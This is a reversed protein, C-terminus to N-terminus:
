EPFERFGVQIIPVRAFGVQHNYSRYRPGRRDFAGAGRRWFSPCSPACRRSGSGRSPQFAGSGQQTRDPTATSGPRRNRAGGSVTQLISLTQKGNGGLGRECEEMHAGMLAGGWRVWRVGESRRSMSDGPMRLAPTPIKGASKLRSRLGNAETGLASDLHAM